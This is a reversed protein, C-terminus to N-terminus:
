YADVKNTGNDPYSVLSRYQPQLLKSSRSHTNLSDFSKIRLSSSHQVCVSDGSVGLDALACNTSSILAETLDVSSCIDVVSSKKGETAKSLSVLSNLVKSFNLGQLLDNVEFAQLLFFLCVFLTFFLKSFCYLVPLNSAPSSFTCLNM